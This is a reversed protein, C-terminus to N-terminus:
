NLLRITKRQSRLGRGSGFLSVASISSRRLIPLVGSRLNALLLHHSNIKVTRQESEVRLKKFPIEIGGGGAEGRYIRDNVHTHAV